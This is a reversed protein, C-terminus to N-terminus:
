LYELTLLRSREGKFTQLLNSCTNQKQFKPFTSNIDHRYFYCSRLPFFFYSLLNHWSIHLQQNKQALGSQPCPPSPLQFHFGPTDTQNARVHVFCASARAWSKYRSLNKLAGRVLLLSPKSEAVSPQGTNRSPQVKLHNEGTNLLCLGKRM